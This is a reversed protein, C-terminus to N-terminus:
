RDRLAAFHHLKPMHKLTESPPKPGPPRPKRNHVEPEPQPGALLMPRPQPPSPRREPGDQYRQVRRMADVRAQQAKLKEPVGEIVYTGNEGLVFPRRDALLWRVRDLLTTPALPKVVLLHAGAHMAREVVRQTAHATVVIVPVFCLPAMFRTRIMRLFKFASNRGLRWDCVILNPPERLMSELAEKITEYVRIRRARLGHLMSRLIAQMPKSDEIVVIDLFEAPLAYCAHHSM